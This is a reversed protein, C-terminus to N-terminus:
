SEDAADSTYLLCDKNNQMIALSNRLCIALVKFCSEIIHHANVGYYNEIHITMKASQAIARFYEQFIESLHELKKIKM